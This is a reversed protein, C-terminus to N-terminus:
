FQDKALRIAAFIQAPADGEARHRRAFDIVDAARARLFPNTALEEEVSGPVSARGEARLARAADLRAAVAANGPEVHLAFELNKVTYEHGVWLQTAVPLAGLRDFSTSMQAATGEFLRGCGALFLTDGTFAHGGGVYAVAGLTHGPVEVVQFTTDAFELTDGSQVARSQRPIRENARDYESGVVEVGPCARALADIGGVHDIHHHTCWIAALQLGRAALSAIVPAGESPDVVVARARVDDILLYAYNDQLLPLPEVHLAM